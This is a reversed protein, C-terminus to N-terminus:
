CASPGRNSVPCCRSKKNWAFFFVIMYNTAPWEIGAQERPTTTIVHAECACPGRNSGPRSCNQFSLKWWMVCPLRLFRDQYVGRCVWSGRPRTTLIRREWRRPGPEIGPWPVWVKHSICVLVNHFDIIVATTTRHTVSLYVSKGCITPQIQSYWSVCCQCSAQKSLSCKAM